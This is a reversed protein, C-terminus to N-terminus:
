SWGGSHIILRLSLGVFTKEPPPTNRFNRSSSEHSIGRASNKVWLILNPFERPSFNGRTLPGFHGGGLSPGSFLNKKSSHEGSHGFPRPDRQAQKGQTLFAMGFQSLSIFDGLLVLINSINRALFAGWLSWLNTPKYWNFGPRWFTHEM